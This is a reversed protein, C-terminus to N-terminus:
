VNIDKYTIIIQDGQMLPYKTVFSVLYSCYAGNTYNSPKVSVESLLAMETM